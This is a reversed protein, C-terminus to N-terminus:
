NPKPKIANIQNNPVDVWRGDPHATMKDVAM